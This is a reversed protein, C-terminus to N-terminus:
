IGVSPDIQFNKMQLPQLLYLNEKNKIHCLTIYTLGHKYVGNLDFALHDFTLGQAQYITCPEVLQIPFQMRTIIHTSNSGIQIDKSIPEIPHGHPIYKTNILIHM